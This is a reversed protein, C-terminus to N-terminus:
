DSNRLDYKKFNLKLTPLLEKIIEKSNEKISVEGVMKKDPNTFAQLFYNEVKIEKLEKIMLEIDDKNLLDSHITTRIEYDIGSNVILSINELINLVNINRNQIIKFYNNKPAKYDIAFYDVLKNKIIEKLMKTNTANTDLKIRYGLHKIYKLWEILNEHITPEGGCIIISEIKGKRNNLFEIFYDKSLYKIENPNVFEPNHCYPCRFNCGGTFFTSGIYGQDDMTTFKQLGSFIPKLNFKSDCM